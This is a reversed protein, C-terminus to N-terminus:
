RGVRRGVAAGHVSKGPQVQVVIETKLAIEDPVSVAQVQVRGRGISTEILFVPAAGLFSANQIEQNIKTAPVAPNPWIKSGPCADSM